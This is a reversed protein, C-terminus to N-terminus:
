ISGISTRDIGFYNCLSNLHKKALVNPFYGRLQFGNMRDIWICLHVRLKEERIRGESFKRSIRHLAGDETAIYTTLVEQLDPAGCMKNHNVFVLVNPFKLNPNVVDFQQVARHIKTTLTNFVPDNRPGGVITGPPAENLQQNLWEDRSITKVECFFALKKGKFVRFDPTRLKRRTRKGFGEAQFGKKQLFAAVRPEDVNM